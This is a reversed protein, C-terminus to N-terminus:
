EKDKETLRALEGVFQKHTTEEVDIEYGLGILIELDTKIFTKRGTLQLLQESMPCAPYIRRKGFSKDIKITIHM